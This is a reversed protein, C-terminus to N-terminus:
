INDQKQGDIEKESPEHEFSIGRQLNGNVLFDDPRNKKYIEDHKEGLSEDDVATFVGHFQEREMDNDCLQLESM